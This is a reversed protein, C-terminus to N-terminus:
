GHNWDLGRRVTVRLAVDRDHKLDCALYVTAMRGQGPERDPRYRDQLTTALGAPAAVRTPRKTTTLAALQRFVM